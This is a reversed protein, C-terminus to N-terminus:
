ALRNVEIHNRQGRVRLTTEGRRVVGDNGDGVVVLEDLWDLRVDNRNGEIRTDYGRGTRVRHGNGEVVLESVQGARVTSRNEQLRAHELLGEVAVVSGPSSVRLTRVSTPSIRQDGGRVVLTRLSKSTVVNDQGRVVVRTATPMTVQTNSALIRVEGCTGRLEYSLNDWEITVDGDSCNVPIAVDSQAPSATLGLAATVATALGLALARGRRRPAPRSTRPQPDTM